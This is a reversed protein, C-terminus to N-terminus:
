HYLEFVDHHLGDAVFSRQHSCKPMLGLEDFVPSDPERSIFTVQYRSVLRYGTNDAYAKYAGLDRGYVICPYQMLITDPPQYYVNDVLGELISQLELRQSQAM